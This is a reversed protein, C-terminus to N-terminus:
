PSIEHLFAALKDKVQDISAFDAISQRACASMAKYREPQQTVVRYSEKYAEVLDRWNIRHRVTTYKENPDHPWVTLEESSGLLFNADESIYDLLATHRPAIAPKGQAMSEMLPLCLGEARSTNVYFVTSSLLKQYDASSLFGHIVIIRCRFPHLKAILEHLESFYDSRHQASVKILLTAGPNERFAWCFATIMDRWNKRGCRPNLVSTYLVGDLNLCQRPPKKPVSMKEDVHPDPRILTAKMLGIAMSRPDPQDAVSVAELDSFKMVNAPETVSFALQKRNIDPDIRLGQKDQGISVTVTKGINSGYAMFELEILIEGSVMRPLLVWAESLCSWAGWVEPEYFGCLLAMPKADRNFSIEIPEGDWSAMPFAATANLATIREGTIAYNATDIVTGNVEIKREILTPDVNARTARGEEWVTVPVPIASIKFTNGLTKKVVDRSHSSLSIAHGVEQLALAWDEMGGMGLAAQPITDFEWAFVDITPCCLGRPVKNPPAFCFFFCPRGQKLADEYIADVERAPDYVTHVDGLEQLVSAFGKRVFFYSYEPKGLSTSITKENVESYLIFIMTEIQIIAV